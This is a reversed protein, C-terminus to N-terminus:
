DLLDTIAATSSVARASLATLDDRHAELLAPDRAFVLVPVRELSQEARLKRLADLASAKDSRLALVVARPELARALRPLEETARSLSVVTYGEAGLEADLQALSQKDEDVVMIVGPPAPAEIATAPVARPASRPVAPADNLTDYEGSRFLALAIKNLLEDVDFPKEVLDNAGYDIARDSLGHLATMVVVPIDRPTSSKRLEHLFQRGNMGPMMVDLLIADPPDAEVKSLATAGDAASDVTYGEEELIRSISARLVSDDDVVLIRGGAM